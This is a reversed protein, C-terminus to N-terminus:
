EDDLYHDDEYHLQKRVRPPEYHDVQQGRSPSTDYAQQRFEFKRSAATTTPNGFQVSSVNVPKIFSPSEYDGVRHLPPSQWSSTNTVETRFQNHTRFSPEKYSPQMREETRHEVQFDSWKPIDFQITSSQLLPVDFRSSPM